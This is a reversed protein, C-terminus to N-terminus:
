DDFFGQASAASIRQPFQQKLQMKQVPQKELFPPISQELMGGGSPDVGGHRAWKGFNNKNKILDRIDASALGNGGFGQGAGAHGHGFSPIIPPLAGRLGTFDVNADVPGPPLVQGSPPAHVAGVNTRELAPRARFSELGLQKHSTNTLNKGQLGLIQGVGLDQPHWPTGVARPHFDVGSSSQLSSNPKEGGHQALKTSTTIKADSNVANGM